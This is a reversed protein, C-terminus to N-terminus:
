QDSFVTKDFVLNSHFQHIREHTISRFGFTHCRPRRRHGHKYVVNIVFVVNQNILLISCNKALKLPLKFTNLLFLNHESDRIMVSELLM